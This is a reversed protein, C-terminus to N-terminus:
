LYRPYWRRTNEVGPFPYIEGQLFPKIETEAEGMWFVLRMIILLRVKQCSDFGREEGDGFFSNAGNYCFLM